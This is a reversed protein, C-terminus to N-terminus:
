FDSIHWSCTSMSLMWLVMPHRLADWSCPRPRRSSRGSPSGRGAHGSRLCALFGMSRPRGTPPTAPPPTPAPPSPSASASISPGPLTALTESALSPAPASTASSVTTAGPRRRRRLDAFDPLWPSPLLAALNPSTPSSIILSHFPRSIIPVSPVQRNEFPPRSPSASRVNGSKIKRKKKFFVGVLIKSWFYFKILLSFFLHSFINIKISKSTTQLFPLSYIKNEGGM